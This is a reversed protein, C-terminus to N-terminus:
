GFIAHRISVLGCIPVIMKVKTKGSVDGILFESGTRLTHQQAQQATESMARDFMVYTTYATSEQQTQNINFHVFCKGIVAVTSLRRRELGPTQPVKRMM